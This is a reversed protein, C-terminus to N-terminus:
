LSGSGGGWGLVMEVEPTAPLDLMGIGALTARIKILDQHTGGKM